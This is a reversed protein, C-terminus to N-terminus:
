LQRPNHFSRRALASRRIGGFRHGLRSRVWLIVNHLAEYTQCSREGSRRFQLRHCIGQFGAPHRLARSRQLKLLGEGPDVTAPLGHGCARPRRREM